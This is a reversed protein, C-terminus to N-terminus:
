PNTLGCLKLVLFYRYKNCWQVLTFYTDLLKFRPEGRFGLGNIGDLGLLGTVFVLGHNIDQNIM